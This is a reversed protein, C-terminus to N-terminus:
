VVASWEIEFWRTLSEGPELVLPNAEIENPPGSQPEVCLGRQDGNYVVWHSCDSRLMLTLGLVEIEVEGSQHLFCDDVPSGTVPLGLQTPAGAMGEGDRPLWQTFLTKVSAPNVFWPHWGVQAPMTTAATVGLEFRIKKPGIEIKHEVDGAFPWHPGLETRLTISREDTAVVEWVTDDVTGHIAHPPMRQLLQYDVGQFRFWGNRVRGAFPVMPYIGWGFDSRASEAGVILETDCVKLSALRGGCTKNILAANDGHDLRIM